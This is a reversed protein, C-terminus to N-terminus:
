KNKKYEQDILSQPKVCLLKQTGLITFYQYQDAKIAINLKYINVNNFDDVRRAGNIESAGQKESPLDAIFYCNNLTYLEKKISEKDMKSIEEKSYKSLLAEPSATQAMVGSVSITLVLASLLQKVAKM